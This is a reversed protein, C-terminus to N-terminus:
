SRMGLKDAIYITTFFGATVVVLIGAGNLHGIPKYNDGGLTRMGMATNGDYKSNAYEDRREPLNIGLKGLVYDAGITTLGALTIAGAGCLYFNVTPDM